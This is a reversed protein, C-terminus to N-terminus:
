AIAAIVREMEKKLRFEDTVLIQRLNTINHREIREKLTTFVSEVEDPDAALRHPGLPEQARNSLDFTKLYNVATACDKPCITYGPKQNPHQGHSPLKGQWVAKMVGDDHRDVEGHQDVNLMGNQLMDVACMVDMWTEVSHKLPGTSQMIPVVYKLFVIDSMHRQRCDTHATTAPQGFM